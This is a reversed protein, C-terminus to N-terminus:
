PEERSPQAATTAEGRKKRENALALQHMVELDVLDEQFGAPQTKTVQKMKRTFKPIGNRLYYDAIVKDADAKEKSAFGKTRLLTSALILQNVPYKPFSEDNLYLTNLVDDNIFKLCYPNKVIQPSNFDVHEMLKDRLLENLKSSRKVKNRLVWLETVTFSKLFEVSLRFTGNRRTYIILEWQDLLNRVAVTIYWLELSLAHMFLDEDPNIERLDYILSMFKRDDFPERQPGNFIRRAIDWSKGVKHKVDLNKQVCAADYIKQKEKKIEEETILKDELLKQFDRLKRKRAENEQKFKRVLEEHEQDVAEEETQFVYAEDFAGDEHNQCYTADFVDDDDMEKPFADYNDEQQHMPQKGKSKESERGPASDSTNTTNGKNSQNSSNGKDEGGKDRNEGKTSPDEGSTPADSKSNRLLQDLKSDIEDFKSMYLEHNSRMEVTLCHIDSKLEDRYSSSPEEEVKKELTVLQAGKLRENEAIMRALEAQLRAIQEEFPAPNTHASVERVSLATESHISGINGSIAQNLPLPPVFQGGSALSPLDVQVNGLLEQDHFFPHDAFNEHMTVQNQFVTSESLTTVQTHAQNQVLTLALATSSETCSVTAPRDVEIAENQQSFSVLSQIAMDTDLGKQSPLSTAATTESAEVRQKKQSSLAAPQDMLSSLSRKRAVKKVPKSTTNTSTNPSSVTQLISDDAPNHVQTNDPENSAPQCFLDFNCGYDSIDVNFNSSFDTLVQAVPLNDRFEQLDPNIASDSPLPQSTSQTQPSYQPQTTPQTPASSSPQAEFFDFPLPEDEYSPFQRQPIPSQVPSQNPSQDPSQQQQVQPQPPQQLQLQLQQDQQQQQQHQQPQAVQVQYPVRQANFSESMFPTVILPVGNYKNGKALKNILKLSTQKVNLREANFYFNKDAETMKDNLLLMLFRPYFCEVKDNTEVNRSGLPGMKRLIEKLITTGFDIQRNFAICVGFVQLINSINHFNRRDTPSFVKALTDFFIEWEPKLKGKTMKSLHIEGQYQITEFFQMLEPEEPPNVFNARPFGLVRNVDDASITITRRGNVDGVRIDGTVRHNDLLTTNLAMSYFDYLPQIQLEASATIATSELCQENVFKVWPRFRAAVAEPDQFGNYNTEMIKFKGVM